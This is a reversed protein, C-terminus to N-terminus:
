RDFLESVQRCYMEINDTKDSQIILNRHNLCVYTACSQKLCTLMNPLHLKVQIQLDGWARSCKRSHNWVCRQFSISSRWICIRILVFIICLFPCKFVKVLHIEDRTFLTSQFSMRCWHWSLLVIILFVILPPSGVPVALFIWNYDLRQNQCNLYSYRTIIVTKPALWLDCNHVLLSCM